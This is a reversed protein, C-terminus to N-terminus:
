NEERSKKNWGGGGWFFFFFSGSGLVSRNGLRVTVLHCRQNWSHVLSPVKVAAVVCVELRAMTRPIHVESFVFPLFGSFADSLICPFVGVLVGWKPPTEDQNKPTYVKSFSCQFGFFSPTPLHTEEEISTIKFNWTNKEEPTNLLIPLVRDFAIGIGFVWHPYCM